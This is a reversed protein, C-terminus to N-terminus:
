AEGASAHAARVVPERWFLSSLMKQDAANELGAASASATVGANNSIVTLDKRVGFIASRMPCFDRAIGCCGWAARFM